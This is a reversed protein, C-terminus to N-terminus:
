PVCNQRIFFYYVNLGLIAIKLKKIHEVDHYLEESLFNWYVTHHYSAGVSTNGHGHGLLRSDLWYSDWGSITNMFPYALIYQVSLILIIAKILANFGAVYMISGLLTPVVLLAGAKISLGLTFAMAGITTKGKSVFYIMFFILLGLVQDNFMLENFRRDAQSSLLIFSILHARMPEGEFYDYSMKSVLTISITHILFFFVKM